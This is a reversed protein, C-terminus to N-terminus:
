RGTQRVKMADMLWMGRGYTSIVIVHDRPHIQLDSVQVSPLNSGLVAWTAGGDKSVYAGFDNGAYLMGQVAPDERVVNISGSPINGAVSTWTAGADASKWLYVAFDDDERGRQAVYVTNAAYQSPVIRSVWKKSAMPLNKGIDTWTRGADKTVHLNGDDTGAYLLGRTLPSEALQTITQYPIASPNVGMQRPNNDTLDGSIKTWTAGRDNSRYVNQFGAYITDPHFPSVIIPAMWQARQVPDGAAAPPRIGKSANPDRQKRPTVDARTFGGYFGHSYVIEPNLPDISHVSGEGGPAREWKFPAFKDRSTRADIAVRYSGADQVSGYAYFPTAGLPNSLTVNYFQTGHIGTAERRTKGGDSTMTFGQDHATYVIKPNAPDIWM